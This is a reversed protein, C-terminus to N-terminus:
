VSMTTVFFLVPPCSSLVSVLTCSDSQTISLSLPMPSAFQLVFAAYFLVEIVVAVAAAHKVADSCSCVIFDVIRQWIIVGHQRIGQALVEIVKVYLSILGSSGAAWGVPHWCQGGLVMLHPVNQLFNIWFADPLSQIEPEIIFTSILQCCKKKKLFM